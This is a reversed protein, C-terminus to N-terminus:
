GLLPIKQLFERLFMGSLAFGNFTMHVITSAVLDRFIREGYYSMKLFVLGLLIGAPGQVLVNGWNGHIYGFYVSVVVLIISLIYIDVRAFRDRTLKWILYVPIGIPIFRYVIEELVPGIVVIGVIIGVMNGFYERVETVNTVTGSSLGQPFFIEALAHGVDSVIASLLILWILNNFLQEFSAGQVLWARLRQM